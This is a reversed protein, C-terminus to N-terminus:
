TFFLRVEEKCLWTLHALVRGRSTNFGRWERAVGRWDGKNVAKFTKSRLVARVGRRYSLSCLAALNNITPTRKLGRLLLRADHEVIRRVVAKSQAMTINQEDWYIGTLGHGITAVGDCDAYKNTLTRGTADDYWTSRFGEREVIFDVAKDVARQLDVERMSAAPCLIGCVVVVMVLFSKM